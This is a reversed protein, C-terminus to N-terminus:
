YLASQQLTINAELVLHLSQARWEHAVHGHAVNGAEGGVSAKQQTSTEAMQQKTQVAFSNRTFTRAISSSM